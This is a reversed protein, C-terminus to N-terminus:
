PQSHVQTHTNIFYYFRTCYFKKYHSLIAIIMFYLINLNKNVKLYPTNFSNLHVLFFNEQLYGRQDCSRPKNFRQIKNTHTLFSWGEDRNRGYHDYRRKICFRYFSSKVDFDYGSVYSYSPTAMHSTMHAKITTKM